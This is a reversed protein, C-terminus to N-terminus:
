GPRRALLFLIDVLSARLFLTEVQRAPLFLIEVQRTSSSCHINYLSVLPHDTDFSYCKSTQGQRDVAALYETPRGSTM